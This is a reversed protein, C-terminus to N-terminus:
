LCFWVEPDLNNKLSLQVVPIDADPYMLKLPIFSGHDLARKSNLTVNFGAPRIRTTTPCLHLPVVLLLFTHAVVINSHGLSTNRMHCKLSAILQM